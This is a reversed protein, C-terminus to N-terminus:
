FSFNAKTSNSIPMSSNYLAKALKFKQRMSALMKELDQDLNNTMSFSGTLVSLEELLKKLRDRGALKSENDEESLKKQLALCTHKCFAVEKSVAFGIKVGFQAADKLSQLQGKRFGDKRGRELEEEEIKLIADFM